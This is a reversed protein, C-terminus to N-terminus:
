SSAPRKAEPRSGPFQGYFLSRPVIALRAIIGYQPIIHGNLAASRESKFQLTGHAVTDALMPPIMQEFTGGFLPNKM